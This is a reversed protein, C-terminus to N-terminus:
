PYQNVNLAHKEIKRILREAKEPTDTNAVYLYLEFLDEQADSILQVDYKM